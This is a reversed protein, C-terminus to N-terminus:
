PTIPTKLLPPRTEGFKWRELELHCFQRVGLLKWPALIHELDEIVMDLKTPSPNWGGSPRGFVNLKKDTQRHTQKDRKQVNSNWLKHAWNRWSPMPSCFRNQHRQIHSPKKNHVRTWNEWIAALQRCLLICFDLFRCFNLTVCYVLQSSIQRTLTCNLLFSTSLAVATPNDQMCLAHVGTHQRGSLFFINNTIHKIAQSM